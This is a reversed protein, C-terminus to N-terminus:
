FILIVDVYMNVLSELLLFFCQRCNNFYESCFLLTLVQLKDKLSEITGEHNYIHFSNMVVARALAPLVTKM